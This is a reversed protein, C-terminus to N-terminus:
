QPRPKRSRLAEDIICNAITMRRTATERAPLPVMDPHNSKAFERRLRILDEATLRPTLHLEEMVTDHDSKPPLPPPPSPPDSAPASRVANEAYLRSLLHTSVYSRVKGAMHDIVRLFESSLPPGSAPRVREAAEDEPDGLAARRAEELARLFEDRDRANLRTM